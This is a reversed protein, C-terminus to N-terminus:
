VSFHRYAAYCGIALIGLVVGYLLPSGELSLGFWGGGEGGAVKGPDLGVAHSFREEIGMRGTMQYAALSVVIVLALLGLFILLGKKEPLATM